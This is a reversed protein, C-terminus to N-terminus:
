RVLDISTQLDDYVAFISTSMSNLLVQDDTDIKLHKSQDDVDIEMPRDALAQHIKSRLQAFLSPSRIFAM